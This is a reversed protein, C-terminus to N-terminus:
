VGGGGPVPYGGGWGDGWSGDARRLRVGQITPQATAATTTSTAAPTQIKAM